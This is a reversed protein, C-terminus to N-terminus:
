CRAASCTTSAACGTSRAVATARDAVMIELRCIPPGFRMAARLGIVIPRGDPAYSAVLGFDVVETVSDPGTATTGYTVASGATPGAWLPWRAGTAM